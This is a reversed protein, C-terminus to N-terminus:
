QLLRSPSSSTTFDPEPPQADRATTSCADPPYVGEVNLAPETELKLSGSIVEADLETGAPFVAGGDLDFTTGVAPTYCGDDLLTDVIPATIVFTNNRATCERSTLEVRVTSPQDLVLKCVVGNCTLHAPPAVTFQV